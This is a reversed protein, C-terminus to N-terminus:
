IGIGLMMDFNISGIKTAILSFLVLFRKQYTASLSVKPRTNKLASVIAM